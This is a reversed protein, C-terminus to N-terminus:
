SRRLRLAASSLSYAVHASRTHLPWPPTKRSIAPAPNPTLPSHHRLFEAFPVAVLWVTVAARVSGASVVSRLKMESQFPHRKVLGIETCVDRM